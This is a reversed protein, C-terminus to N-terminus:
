ETKEEDVLTTAKELLSGANVWDFWYGEGSWGIEL